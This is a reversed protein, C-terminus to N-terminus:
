KPMQGGRTTGHTRTALSTTKRVPKYFISNNKAREAKEATDLDISASLQRVLHALIEKLSV